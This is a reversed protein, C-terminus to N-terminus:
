NVVKSHSLKKILEYDLGEGQTKERREERKHLGSLLFQVRRSWKM